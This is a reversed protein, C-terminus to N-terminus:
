SPKYSRTRAAKEILDTNGGIRAPAPVTNSGFLERMMKGLTENTPGYGTHYIYHELDYLLSDADPYRQNLDRVLCRQLIQNLRCDIRPELQSFEPTPLQIGTLTVQSLPQLLRGQLFL